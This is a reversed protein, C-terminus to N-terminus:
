RNTVVLEVQAERTTGPQPSGPSALTIRAEDVGRRVLEDRVASARRTALSRDEDANGSEDAAVDISVDATPHAQLPAAVGDLAASSSPDLRESDHEFAVGQLPIAKPTPESPDAFFQNLEVVAASPGGGIIAPARIPAHETTGVPIRRRGMLMLIVLVALVGLLVVSM